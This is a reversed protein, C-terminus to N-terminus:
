AAWLVYGPLYMGDLAENRPLIRLTYGYRGSSRSPILGSFEYSGDGLAKTAAMDVLGANQIDGSSDLPGHYIQVIVDRPELSGLYIQAHVELDQGVRHETTDASEIRVFRIKGWHKQLQLKWKAVQKAQALGEATLEAYRRDAPLYQKDTYEILMRHSNYVPGLKETASKMMHLWGRPLNDQGRQYFLPVVEKELLDYLAHSEVEDQYNTDTYEEGRGIAWGTTPEYAEAWWGDLISLNIAGNASAKMGSTGSAEQPRRPTNLWVDVGQVMYRAINLDYNELFVIRRRFPEQRALHIVQRIIEKGANDAPHAKGAFIIQVPRDKNDLIRALREPDRLILNARKYTAFRRAFGLTLADPDLVEAAAEIEVPPAGRHILQARLRNRAFAVLRERRREHTRWLEEDPIQNLRQWITVDAPNESWRPGLYRDYLGAMDGSIFSRFHVANTVHAIPVEDAPLGPWLNQWMRRAVHGHLKSVGNARAALRLALTAMSFSENPDNLRERGLALLEDRTIGLSPLYKAFYRDMLYPPFLDIGAPVPTHTTFVNGATAAERAVAFPVGQEAMIQRIRELALFASHGENMHCVTPKIGLAQLAKMGGIGLLIEQRIRMELDGGYLQHTISRDDPHNAEVNTDLLYLPTRGVQVRWIQAKVTREPYDLEVMLPSNDEKKVLWLPMNYFDNRPYQEQQWGDANLYQTAYGMQYLLGVGAMPLGLDSASKLYDGALVGLGGSYIPLCESLGFEASFYAILFGNKVKEPYTKQFWTPQSLYRDFARGVRELHALFGDDEAAEELRSQAVTGIILVPNHGSTEWLDRDLRRFLEIADLNWSWWLNYALEQLRQLKPPLSPLVTYQQVPRM